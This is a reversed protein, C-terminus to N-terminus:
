RLGAAQKVRSLVEGAVTRARAQGEELLAALSARDDLLGRFRDRGPGFRAELVDCLMGKLEGDGAGARLRAQADAAVEPPALSRLLALVLHGQPDGPEGVARSSTRVRGVQRRMAKPGDFLGITNGYSKSMKRGDVGPLSEPVSVRAEPEVLVEGYAHNFRRALERAVELHQLQDPGVPVQSAGLALIDAAMLVPYGFLGMNVGADPEEGRAENDAVAAKYAHARNALGKPCLSALISALQFIEPVDSQRFLLVRSPDLGCALYTAVVEDTADRLETPSRMTNLAHGDAVFVAVDHEAQEALSLIPQIAGVFNGLHPRGSPKIATVITPHM